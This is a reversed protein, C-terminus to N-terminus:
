KDYGGEPRSSRGLGRLDPVIVRHDRALEAALRGWMDGTQTYGHLLVVAPGSGAMRYHLTVEGLEAQAGAFAPPFPAPQAAAATSLVTAVLMALLKPM